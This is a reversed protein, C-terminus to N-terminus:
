QQIAQAKVTRIGSANKGDNKLATQIAKVQSRLRTIEQQQRHILAQQEKTAEILLATLRSYDVGDADKGNKDWTVVEPVVAGVEEAIVGIEHKGNAKLDYSVARLQEVKGLAGHLTHINTKWRRSSWTSWADAMAGGTSQAITLRYSPTATGIGVKVAYTGTGGLVLANSQSVTAYAGIATANTLTGTSMDTNTGLFTNFNGTINSFDQTKGAYTGFGTNGEGTNNYELAYYGSATNYNGTTNASLAWDGDATNYAGTTNGNLASAGSATNDYGSANSGLAGYGVATNAAADWGVGSDDNNAYLAYLGVATNYWGDGVSDGVNSYLARYGVGTNGLAGSQLVGTNGAFASFANETAYSGWDFLNSGIQFSSGTVVGTASVNGNVTQNGTFTNATGLQPVKTTDVNLTTSGGLSVAGGGTLDTGATVTLSSNQLMANTIGSSPVSLTVNGSTGGGTLGAGATVGTITGTGPFTQGSVFTVAGTSSVQFATGNVSLTPSSGNPFLTLTNRIDSTGNVDLNAAPTTTGIGLDGATSQFIKSSGLKSKSLWLPVYDTTGSGSIANNIVGNGNAANSSSATLFASAPQGNLTQADGAKMAYPVSLLMVRPQEEQGSIQVGVWRAEGSTFLSTPLGNALTAGLQVTYNGHADLQVNQTELWLPAGGQQEQYLAFTIGVLGTMPQGNPAKAVGSFNILQPVVTASGSSATQQAGASMAFLVVAMMLYVIYSKM